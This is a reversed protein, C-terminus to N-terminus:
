VGLVSPNAADGNMPFCDFTGGLKKAVNPTAGFGFM